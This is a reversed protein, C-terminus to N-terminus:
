VISKYANKKIKLAVLCCYCGVKSETNLIIHLPVAFAGNMM